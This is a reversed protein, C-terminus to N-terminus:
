MNLFYFDFILFAMDLFKIILNIEIGPPLVM